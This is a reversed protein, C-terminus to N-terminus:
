EGFPQPLNSEFDVMCCVKNAPCSYEDTKKYLGTCADASDACYAPYTMKTPQCPDKKKPNIVDPKEASATLSLVGLVVATAIAGVYHLKRRDNTRINM